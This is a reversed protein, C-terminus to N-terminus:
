GRRRSKFYMVAGMLGIIYGIGGLIETLGPKESKEQLKLLMTIVPQLKRDMAKNVVAEIEASSVGSAVTLPVTSQPKSETKQEKVGSEQNRVGTDQIGMAEKVEKAGLTYDNRHGMSAHLVLRISTAKPIRFSFKGESDTKGELLKEGTNADFVEIRSNRSRTGDAFYGEAFVMNDEAYAYISVKHALVTSSTIHLICFILIFVSIMKFRSGQIKFRSDKNM